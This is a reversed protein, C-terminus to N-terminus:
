ILRRRRWLLVGAGLVLISGLITFLRTGPGGTNPLAAGPVNDVVATANLGGATYTFDRVIGEQQVSAWEAPGKGSVPHLLAVGEESVKIYFTDSGVKVYGEPTTSEQVAYYGYTLDAFSATGSGATFETAIAEGPDTAGTDANLSYLDFGAGNITTESNIEKKVINLNFIKKETNTITLNEQDLAVTYDKTQGDVVTEGNVEIEEVEYKYVRFRTVQSGTSPDTETVQQYAPLNALTATWNAASAEASTLSQNTSSESAVFQINSGQLTYTLYEVTAGIDGEPILAARMAELSSYVPDSNTTVTMSFTGAATPSPTVWTTNTGFPQAKFTIPGNAVAHYTNDKASPNTGGSGTTSTGSRPVKADLMFSNSSDNQRVPVNCAMAIREGTQFRELFFDVNSGERVYRIGSYDTNIIASNTATDWQYLDWVVPIFADVSKVKVKFKIRDTAAATHSGDRKNWIKQIELDTTEHIGQPDPTYSENYYNVLAATETQGSRLTVSAETTSEESNWVYGTIEVGDTKEKVTYTGKPLETFELPSSASVQFTKETESFTYPASAEQLYKGESNKITVTFSKDENGTIEGEITKTVRLTGTSGLTNTITLPDDMNDRSVTLMDEGDTDIKAESDTRINKETASMIYYYYPNGNEDAADIGETIVKEWDTDSASLTVEKTWGDTVYVQTDKEAEPPNGGNTVTKTEVAPASAAKAPAMHHFSQLTVGPSVSNSGDGVPTITVSNAIFRNNYDGYPDANLKIELKKDKVLTYEVWFKACNQGNYQESAHRLEMTQGNYKVERGDRDHWGGNRCYFTLRVKTGVPIDSPVTGSDILPNNNYAHRIEYSNNSDVVQEYLKTFTITKEDAKNLEQVAPNPSVTNQQLLYNSPHNVGVEEVTYTGVPLEFAFTQDNSKSYNVRTIERGKEGNVMEYVVYTSSFTNSPDTVNSAVNLIGTHQTYHSNFTVVKPTTGSIVIDESERGEPTHEADFHEPDTTTQRVYYTGDPLSLVVDEGNTDGSAVINNEKDFVTYHAQFTMCDQSAYPSLKKTVNSHIILNEKDKLKYRGLTLTIEVNKKDNDTWDGEWNKKVKLHVPSNEIRYETIKDNATSKDAIKISTTYGEVPNEKVTYTIQKGDPTKDPLHEITRKWEDGSTLTFTKGDIAAVPYPVPNSGAEEGPITAKVTFEVTDSAHNKTQADKWDKVVDLNAEPLRNVITTTDWTKIDHNGAKWGVEGKKSMNILKGSKNKEKPSIFPTMVATNLEQVYYQVTPALKSITVTEGNKITVIGDKIPFGQDIIAGEANKRVTYNKSTDTNETDATNYLTFPVTSGEATDRVRVEYTFEKNQYEARQEQPLNELGQIEKKLNLSKTVLLNFRIACNSDCGGRELYFFDVTHKSMNKTSFTKGSGAFLQTFTKTTTIPIGNYDYEEVTSTLHEFDITGKVPQHVGGMDLVLVGDVFVWVDDDGSFEFTMPLNTEPDKGGTPYYFETHLSTGFQHNYHNQTPSKEERYTNDYDTFPFFGIKEKREVGDTPSDKKYTDSYLLIENNDESMRAYNWESDYYYYGDDDKRLFGQLGKGDRGEYATVGSQGGAGFLYGLSGNDKTDNTQWYASNLVPYGADNLKQQVIGPNAMKNYKKVNSSQNWEGTFQNIKSVGTGNLGSQGSGSFLLGRGNNIGTGNRYTSESPCGNGSGWVVDIDRNNVTGEYDFMKLVIGDELIDWTSVYGPMIKNEEVQQLNLWESPVFGDAQEDMTDSTQYKMEFVNNSFNLYGWQENQLTSFRYRGKSHTDTSNLKDNDYQVRFPTAEDKNETLSINTGDVHIYKGDASLYYGGKTWYYSGTYSRNGSNYSEDFAAPNYEMKWHFLNGLDTSVDNTNLRRAENVEAKMARNSYSVIFASNDLGLPDTSQADTVKITVVAGDKMTVTLTEESIFPQVSILAWDGAEVTQANIEAIQDDTLDASYEVELGNAEKLGGVTTASYVKGVWVLEPSSFEVSEVDAVFKKTAESVEVDGLTLATNTDANIGNEEVVKNASNGDVNEAIVSRNEDGNGGSNTNGIIGLVEVLDTFSVFGGGPLNFEYKKGDVEWHFDVTYIVGYVSFSEATFEVTAAGGDQIEAANAEIVEADAKKNAFHVASVETDPNEALAETYTIEVSVGNEPTFEKGDVMIKIDFFRAAFRPLTEEETLGMAKKTKELYKKYEKSDQAIESVTLGAGEPIGSTADYTLTVTYDSGTAKLTGVEPAAEEGNTEASDTQANEERSDSYDPIEADTEAAAAKLVEDVNGALIGVLSDSEALDNGKLSLVTIIGDTLEVVSSEDPNVSVLEDRVDSLDDSVEPSNDAAVTVFGDVDDSLREFRGAFLTDDLHEVTNNHFIIQIDVLGTKPTVDVNNCILAFDYFACTTTDYIFEKDLLKASRSSLDAYKESEPDVPNVVLESEAPIVEDTSFIATATMNDDAYAFTVANEHDAAISVGEPELANEEFMDNTDAEKELYMGGVDEVKNREVTIAPLILAYTTAFTIIAALVTVVRKWRKLAKHKNIIRNLWVILSKM